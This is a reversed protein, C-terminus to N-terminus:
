CQDCEATTWKSDTCINTARQADGCCANADEGDSRRITAEWLEIRPRAKGPLLANGTNM